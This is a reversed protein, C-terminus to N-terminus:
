LPQQWWTRTTTLVHWAAYSFYYGIPLVLLLIGSLTVAAEISSIGLVRTLVAGIMFYLPPYHAPLHPDYYDRLWNGSSLSRIYTVHFTQDSLLGGYPQSAGQMNYAYTVLCLVGVVLAYTWDITRRLHWLLAWIGLGLVTTLLGFLVPGLLLESYM